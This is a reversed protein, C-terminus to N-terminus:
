LEGWHPYTRRYWKRIDSIENQAADDMRGRLVDIRARAWTQLEHETYNPMEPGMQGYSLDEYNKPLPM